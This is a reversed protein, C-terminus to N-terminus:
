AARLLLMGGSGHGVIAGGNEDAHSCSSVKPSLGCEAKLGLLAEIPDIGLHYGLIYIPYSGEHYERAKSQSYDARQKLMAKM